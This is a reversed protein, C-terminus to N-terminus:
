FYTFFLPKGLASPDDALPFSESPSEAPGQPTLYRRGFGQYPCFWLVSGSSSCLSWTWEAADWRLHGCLSTSMTTQIHWTGSLSRPPLCPEWMTNSRISSLDHQFKKKTPSIWSHTPSPKSFAQRQLSGQGGDRARVGIPHATKRPWVRSPWVRVVPWLFHLLCMHAM